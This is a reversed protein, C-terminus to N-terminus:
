QTENDKKISVSCFIKNDKQCRSATPTKHTKRVISQTPRYNTIIANEPWVWKSDLSEKTPRARCLRRKNYLYAWFYSRTCLCERQLLESVTQNYAQPQDWTINVNGHNLWKNFVDKFHKLIVNRNVKLHSFLHFVNKKHSHFHLSVNIWVYTMNHM